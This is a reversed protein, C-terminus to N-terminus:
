ERKVQWRLTKGAEVQVERVQEASGPQRVTLTHPGAVLLTTLPCNGMYAGDIIVVAERSSCQVTVRGTQLSTQAPEIGPSTSQSPRGSSPTTLEPPEWRPETQPELGKRQNTTEPGIRPMRRSPEPVYPTSIERPKEQVDFIRFALQRGRVVIRLVDDEVETPFTQGAAIDRCNRQDDPAVKTPESAAPQSVATAAADEQLFPCAALYITEDLDRFLAITAPVKETAGADSDATEAVPRCNLVAVAGGPEAGPEIACDLAWRTLQDDLSDDQKELLERREADLTFVATSLKPSPAAFLAPGAVLVAISAALRM